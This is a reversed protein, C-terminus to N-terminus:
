VRDHLKRHRELDNRRTFAKGCEPCEFPRIGRHSLEHNQRHFNRTFTKGCITCTHNAKARKATTSNFTEALDSLEPHYARTHKELDKANTFGEAGLCDSVECQFPRDHINVHRNRAKTDKFGESFYRCTIRTCKFRREYDYFELYTRRDSKNLKSPLEELVKRNRELATALSKISIKHRAEFGKKQFTYIHSTLLVLSEYIPQDEFVKCTDKCDEVIGSAWDEEGYRAMFDDIADSIAKLQGEQHKTGELFKAGSNVWATVHHFWKAAAYDQFALQGDLTLKELEVQQEPGVIDFCPFTLYQLCLSALECEINPENIDDMVTTIFTKATSHVLSIRDGSVLVLSGCIDHIHTRLRRADYEITQNEIDISLAIQIEKWALRRKACVLWGLLRKAVTWEESGSTHKIRRMIRGYAKKLDDPFNEKRISDLLHDRTPQDHLNRLVLQAYLFMGKANAVTLNRLYEKMDDTFPTHKIAIKDVWYRTFTYIDHQNDIESIQITNPAMGTSTSSHLSKWIDSYNQSVILVRLKGPVDTNCQGAIEMITHLVQKREVPECEDLGDVIIFLKPIVSCLDELLKKAQTHSRLTPEGSLTCKAYCPPLMDPCQDLLQDVLGKLIGIASSSPQDGDRCYHYSTKFNPIRKCEEIIASALITKGAGPIGHMWLVPTNPVEEAVWNKISEKKLIWTTTSYQKRILCFSEHDQQTQQGVALWEKVALKRKERTEVITEELKLKLDEIDEQHRRYQALSACSEVLKKHRALSELIGGFKTDFNKWVSRFFRTWLRGSFFKMAQQHFDLIDIYIMELASVMYRNQRFLSEYESLLPLQEGIREYANLLAEFSETFTSATVLLLKMPGWLFAVINTVNLFVKIIGDFQHMAELFSKIRALDRLELREKQEKQIKDIDQRLQEYSTNHFDILETGTLRARFRSIANNLAESTNPIPSTAM